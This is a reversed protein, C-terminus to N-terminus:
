GGRRGGAGEPPQPSPLPALPVGAPCRLLPPPLPWVRCWRGGCRALCGLLRPRKADGLPRRRRGRAGAQPPAAASLPGPPVRWPCARGRRVLAWASRALGAGRLPPPGVPRREDQGKRPAPQHPLPPPSARLRRSPRGAFGGRACLRGRRTGPPPRGCFAAPRRWLGVAAGLRPVGSSPALGPRIQSLFIPRLAAWKPRMGSSNPLGRMASWVPPFPAGVAASQKLGGRPRPGVALIDWLPSLHRNGSTKRLLKGCNRFLGTPM